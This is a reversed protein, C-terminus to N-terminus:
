FDNLGFRHSKPVKKLPGSVHFDCLSLDPIYPPPGVGELAHGPCHPGCPFPRQRAVRHCGEHARGYAGVQHCHVPRMRRNIEAPQCGDAGVLRIVAQRDHKSPNQM